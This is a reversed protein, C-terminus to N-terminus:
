EDILNEEEDEGDVDDGNAEGDEAAEDEDEGELHQKLIKEFTSSDSVKTPWNNKFVPVIANPKNLPKGLEPLTIDEETMGCADLIEKCQEDDGNAKATM